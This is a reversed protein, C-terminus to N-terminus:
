GRWQRGSLTLARVSFASLAFTVLMAAMSLRAVCVGAFATSGGDGGGGTKHLVTFAFSATIFLVVSVSLAASRRSALAPSRIRPRLSRVAAVRAAAFLAATCSCYVALLCLVFLAAAAHPHSALFTYCSAASSFKVGSAHWTYAVRLCALRALLACVDRWRRASAARLALVAVLSACLWFWVHHEEEM